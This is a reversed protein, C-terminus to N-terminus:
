GITTKTLHYWNNMGLIVGFVKQITFFKVLRQLIKYRLCVLRVNKELRRNKFLLSVLFQFPVQNTTRRILFYSCTACTTSLFTFFSLISGLCCFGGALTKGVTCVVVLGTSFFFYDFCCQVFFNSANWRSSSLQNVYSDVPFGRQLM